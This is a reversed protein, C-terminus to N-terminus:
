VLSFLSKSSMKRQISFPLSALLVRWSFGGNPWSFLTAAAVAAAAAAAPAPRVCGFL